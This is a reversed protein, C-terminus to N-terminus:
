VSRVGSSFDAQPCLDEKGGVLESPLWTGTGAASKAVMCGFSWSHGQKTPSERWSRLDESAMIEGFRNPKFESYGAHQCSMVCALRCPPQGPGRHGSGFPAALPSIGATTADGARALSPSPCPVGAAMGLLGASETLFSLWALLDSVCALQEASAALPCSHCLLASAAVSKSRPSHSAPAGPALSFELGLSSWRHEPRVWGDAVLGPM